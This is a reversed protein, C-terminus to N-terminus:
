GRLYEALKDIDERRFVNLKGDRESFISVPTQGQLLWEWAQTQLSKKRIGLKYLLGRVSLFRSRDRMAYTSPVSESPGAVQQVIPKRFSALQASRQLVESAKQTASAAIFHTYGVRNKGLNKKLCGVSIGENELVEVIRPTFVDHFKLGAWRSIETVPYVLPPQHRRALPYTFHNLKRVLDGVEAGEEIATELEHIVFSSRSTPREGELMLTM